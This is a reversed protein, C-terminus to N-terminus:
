EYSEAEIGLLALPQPCIWLTSNAKFFCLSQEVGLVDDVPTRVVRFLEAGNPPHFARQIAHDIFHPVVFLSLEVM